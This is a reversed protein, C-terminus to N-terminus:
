VKLRKGNDGVEIVSNIADVLERNSISTDRTAAEIERLHNVQQIQANMILNITSSYEGMMFDIYPFLKFRISDLYGGVLLVTDESANAIGKAIGTLNSEGKGRGFFELGEMWDMVNTMDTDLKPLIDGMMRNLVSLKEKTLGEDTQLEKEVYDFIPQLHKGAIGALIAERIMNRAMERFRGEIALSTDEFSYYADLWADAFSNAANALSTGAMREVMDSISDEIAHTTDLIENELEKANKKAKKGSKKNEADLQKNLAEQQKRLNEIERNATRFYDSGYAKKIEQQLVKYEKQLQEIAEKQKKIERNHKANFANTIFSGIKTIAKIATSLVTLAISAKQVGTLAQISAVSIESIKLGAEEFVTEVANMSSLTANTVEGIVGIAEGSLGGISSEIDRFNNNVNNLVSQVRRWNQYIKSSEDDSKDAAEEKLKNLETIMARLVQYVESNTGFKKAVDTMEKEIQESLKVLEDLGKGAVEALFVAFDDTGKVHTNIFDDLEESQKRLAENVQEDSMGKARMSDIDKQYKANIQAIKESYTAYKDALEKLEKESEQRAKLANDRLTNFISRAMDEVEPKLDKGLIINRWEMDLVSGSGLSIGLEKLQESLFTELSKDYPKQLAEWINVQRTYDDIDKRMRALMSRLEEDVKKAGTKKPEEYGLLALKKNIEDINLAYDELSKENEKTIKQTRKDGQIKAVSAEIEARTKLLENVTEYSEIVKPPVGSGLGGAEFAKNIDEEGKKRAKYFDLVDTLEKRLKNEFVASQGTQDGMGFMFVGRGREEFKNIIGEIGDFGDEMVKEMDFFYDKLTKFMEAKAEGVYGKKDLLQSINAWSEAEKSIYASTISEMADQRAKGKSIGLMTEHLKKYVTDLDEVADIEESLGKMYEGYKRIIENKIKNYKESGKEADALRLFVLKLAAEESETRTILRKITADMEEYLKVAKSMEENHSSIAYVVSSLAVALAGWPMTSMTAKLTQFSVNTLMIAIRVTGYASAGVLVAKTLSEHHEMIDKLFDVFGGMVSSGKEGIEALFIDYADALNTIKGKLTDAQVEQMKYFKGGEETMEFLVDRVMEFPVQRTYIKDFIDATTIGEEGLEKFKRVLEDILPIGAETFQRLEQGRLVASSRVQGFALILRGMDVGLGSSIDALRKTTDYLEEYPVSFATLQKAYSVLDKVEFPSVVALTKIQKFITEAREANNLMAAIANKQMEFEGTIDAMQRVIRVGSYISLYSAAINRLQSMAKGSKKLQREHREEEAIVQTLTGKYKGYYQNLDRVRNIIAQGQAGERQSADLKDYMESLRKIQESYVNVSKTTDEFNVGTKPMVKNVENATKQLSKLQKDLGPPIEFSIKLKNKDIDSQLNNLWDKIEKNAKDIGDKTNINIGLDM